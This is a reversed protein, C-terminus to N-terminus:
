SPSLVSGDSTVASNEAHQRLASRADRIGPMRGHAELRILADAPRVAGSAVLASIVAQARARHAPEHVRRAVDVLTRLPSTVRVGAMEVIDSDHVGVDHFIARRDILNGVRHAAGRMVAHRSPPELLAGYIWAASWLGAVLRPGCIGRMSAARMSVSEIADAPMYGEGIEVVDGDLRAASLEASSLREGPLYVLPWHM